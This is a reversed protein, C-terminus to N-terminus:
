NGPGKLAAFLIQRTDGTVAARRSTRFGLAWLMGDYDCAVYVRKREERPVKLDTFLDSLLKTGKMGFPGIRDAARWPRLCISGKVEDLDFAAWSRGIDEAKLGKDVGTSQQFARNALDSLILPSLFGEKKGELFAVKEGSLIYNYTVSDIELGTDPLFITGSLPLELHVDDEFPVEKVTCSREIVFVDYEVRAVLGHPLDLSTGTRGKRVLECLANIQPSYFGKVEGCLRFCALLMLRGLVPEDLVSLGKLDLCLRRDTSSEKENTDECTCLDNLAKIAMKEIYEDAQRCFASTRAIAEVVQQNYEEKLMPILLNRVKNRMYVSELNTHDVMPCVGIANCYQEIEDKCVDILPRIVTYEGDNRVPAMGGLGKLGSGRMLHLLVTEVQDDRHHAVAVKSCDYRQAVDRFLQYRANRGAEELSIRDAYAIREVDIKRYEVTLGLKEALECVYERDRDSEDGRLMHDLHAVYLRLGYEGSLEKLVYLLAVSDAGGSVGVVVGDGHCLMDNDEITKRVTCLM